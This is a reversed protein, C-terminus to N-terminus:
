TQPNTRQGIAEDLTSLAKQAAEYQRTCWIMRVM